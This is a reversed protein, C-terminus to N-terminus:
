VRSRRHGPSKEAYRVSLRLGSVRISNGTIVANGDLDLASPLNKLGTVIPLGAANKLDELALRGNIHASIKPDRMSEVSGNIVVSSLATSIRADHLDVRDRELAVPLTITLNVPTNRGSAVYLPQFSLQGRYGQSLANYRLEAKLNNGRINVAQKQSGVTLLGNTLDFHGVALDVMTELATDNSAQKPNPINTRGDPFVIVNAEPKQIGLYAVDLIHHISTFLRVDVQVREARLFPAAGPPESGHIVFGTAVARMQRLDFTFSDINVKGGTSEETSAIIKQKVYARFSATPVIVIAAVVAAAVLAAVGIAINRIIRAPRSM